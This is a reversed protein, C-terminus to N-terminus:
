ATVDEDTAPNDKVVQVVIELLERYADIARAKLDALVDPAYGGTASVEIHNGAEDSVYFRM